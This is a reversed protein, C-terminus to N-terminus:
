QWADFEKMAQYTDLIGEEKLTNYVEKESMYVTQERALRSAAKRERDIKKAVRKILKLRESKTM